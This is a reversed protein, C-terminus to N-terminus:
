LWGGMRRLQRVEVGSKRAYRVTAWTGSRVQEEDTKPAAILVDCADVIDHNRDLYPRPRHWTGPFERLDSARSMDAPPHYHLVTAISDRDMFSDFVGHILLLAQTDAGVCCGHHFEDIDDIEDFVFQKLTHLQATSMGGESGTFGLKM